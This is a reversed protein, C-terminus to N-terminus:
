EIRLETFIMLLAVNVSDGNHNAENGGCNGRIM